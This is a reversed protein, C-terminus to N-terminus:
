GTTDVIRADDNPSLSLLSLQKNLLPVAARHYNFPSVGGVGLM